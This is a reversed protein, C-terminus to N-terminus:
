PFCFLIGVSISKLVCLAGGNASHTLCGLLLCSPLVKLKNDRTPDGHQHKLAWLLPGLGGYKKFQHGATTKNFSKLVKLAIHHEKDLSSCLDGM